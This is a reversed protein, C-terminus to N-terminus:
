PAIALHLSQIIKRLMLQDINLENITINMQMFIRIHILTFVLRVISKILLQDEVMVVLLLCAKKQIQRLNSFVINHNDAIYVSADDFLSVFVSEVSYLACM